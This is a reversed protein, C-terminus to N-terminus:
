VYSINNEIWKKMDVVVYSFADTRLRVSDQSTVINANLFPTESRYTSPLWFVRREMNIGVWWIWGDDRLRFLRESSTPALDDAACPPRHEPPIPILGQDTLISRHGDFFSCRTIALSTDCEFLPYVQKTSRASAVDWIRLRPPGGSTTLLRTEDTSWTLCRGYLWIPHQVDTPLAQFIVEEGSFADLLGFKGHGMWAVLDSQPSFSVCVPSDHDQVKAVWVRTVSDLDWLEVHFNNDGLVVQKSDCHFSIFQILPQGSHSSRSHLQGSQVDIILIDPDFLGHLVLFRDDPSMTAFCVPLDAIPQTWVLTDSAEKRFQITRDNYLTTFITGLPSLAIFMPLREGHRPETVNINMDWFRLPGGLTAAALLSGDPSFQVAWVSNGHGDFSRIQTGTRVDWVACSLTAATRCQNPTFEGFGFGFM